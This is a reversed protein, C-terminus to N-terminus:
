TATSRLRLQGAGAAVDAESGDGDRIPAPRRYEVRHADQFSERLGASEDAREADGAEEREAECPPPSQSPSAGAMAALLALVTSCWGAGYSRM